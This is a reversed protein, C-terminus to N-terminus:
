AETMGTETRASGFCVGCPIENLSVSLGMFLGGIDAGGAVKPPKGSPKTPEELGM